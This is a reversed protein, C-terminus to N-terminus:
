NKERDGWRRVEGTTPAFSIPSLKVSFDSM